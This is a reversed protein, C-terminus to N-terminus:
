LSAPIRGSYKQMGHIVPPLVVKVPYGDRNGDLRSLLIEAVHQGIEELPQAAAYHCFQLLPAYFLHDFAAFVMPSKRNGEAVLFSTAGIHVMDNVVFFAQPSDEKELVQKMLSYGSRQNMGGLLIFEQELPLNHQKMADQFGRLREISTHVTPEGGLFGIRTHGEQILACTADYAGKRNDVLVTDCELFPIERDLMVMPIGQSQSLKFHDGVNSVPIVVLADVNRELLLSLKRQEEEVSNETSCLLLVYGLPGLLRELQEVLETFFTNSIEPVMIGITKTRKTKLSRAVANRQYHLEQVAALVKAETVANVVGLHNLVRSVTAISVGALKAVDKITAQGRKEM